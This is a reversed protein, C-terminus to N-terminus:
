LEYLAPLGRVGLAYYWLVPGYWRRFSCRANVRPSRKSWASGRLMRLNTRTTTRNSM